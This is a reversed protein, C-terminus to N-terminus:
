PKFFYLNSDDSGAAVGTAEAAIAIPWSMKATEYVWRCAQRDLDLLYFHGDSAEGFGDAIALYQAKADMSASNPAQLTNFEMLTHATRNPDSYVVRVGGMTSTSGAPAEGWPVNSVAAVVPTQPSPNALAVFYVAGKSEQSWVPAQTSAFEDTRFLSFLGGTSQSGGSVAFWLGDATMTVCRIDANAPATWTGAPTLTGGEQQFLLVSGDYSGAAVWKGDGSIAVSQLSHGVPILAPTTYADGELVAVYLGSSACAVVVSGSATIAVKNIRDTTALRYDLAVAGTRLDYAQIFGANVTDTVLKGGAVAHTGDGSCAVWYAGESTTDLPWTWIPTAGSSKFAYVAFPIPGGYGSYDHFYTGAVILAADDSISVSNVLQSLPSSWVPTTPACTM